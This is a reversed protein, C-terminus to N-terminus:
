GGYYQRYWRVFRSVGESLPTAPRYGVAAALDSIDAWTSPVDGPQMALLRREAKRGLTSELAGIFADLGVPRGTGVNYLRWPAASAAPDPRAPDWDPAPRAPQDLV